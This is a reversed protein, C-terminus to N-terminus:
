IQILFHTAFCCTCTLRVTLGVSLLFLEGAANTSPHDMGFQAAACAYVFLGVAPFVAAFATTKHARVAIYGQDDVAICALAPRSSATRVDDDASEVSLSEEAVSGALSGALATERDPSALLAEKDSAPEAMAGLMARM